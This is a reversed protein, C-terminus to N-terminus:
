LRSEIDSWDYKHLKENITKKIEEYENNLRIQQQMVEYIQDNIEILEDDNLTKRKEELETIKEETEKVQRKLEKLKKIINELNEDLYKETDNVIKMIEWWEQEEIISSIHKEIKQIIEDKLEENIWLDLSKIYWIIKEFNEVIEKHKEKYEKLTKAQAERWISLLRKLEEESKWRLKRRDIKQWYSQSQEEIQKKLRYKENKLKAINKKQADLKEREKRVRSLMLRKISVGCEIEIAEDAIEMMQKEISKLYENNTGLKSKLEKGKVKHRKKLEKLKKYKEDAAQFDWDKKANEYNEFFNETLRETLESFESNELINNEKFYKILEKLNLLKEYREIIVKERQWRQTDISCEEQWTEWNENITDQEWDDSSEDIHFTIIENKGQQRTSITVTWETKDVNLIKIEDCRYTYQQKWIMFFQWWKRHAIYFIKWWIVNLDSISDFKKENLDIYEEKWLMLYRKNKKKVYYIPEWWIEGYIGISDFWWAYVKDWRIIHYGCNNKVWFLPKWWIEKVEWMKEYRINWCYKGWRTVNCYWESDTNAIMTKWWIEKQFHLVGESKFAPKWWIEQIYEINRYWGSYEENWRIVCYRYDKQVIFCPKWWVEQIYEINRYWGSYEENWRIICYFDNWRRDKKRALFCPKWWIDQLDYTQYYLDKQQEEWWIICHKWEKIAEFCPKWWIEQLNYIGDFWDWQQETWRMICYKWDKNVWYCLKWWIEQLYDKDIYKNWNSYQEKWHMVCYKWHKKIIFCPKWWIEQLRNVTEFRDSYQETWWMVCCKWNKEAVFCPKWWIEQLDYTSDFWDWQRETWRMICYKWDKKAEFVPKWWIEQIKEVDDFWEWQQKNWRMVCYKWDKRANFCPKWWIECLWYIYEYEWWLQEEWWIICWKWDKKAKFVPKWWIERYYKEVENKSEYINKRIWISQAAKMRLTWQKEDYYDFFKKSVEDEIRKKIEDDVWIWDNLLKIIEHRTHNIWNLQNIIFWRYDRLSAPRTVGESFKLQTNDMNETISDDSNQDWSEKEVKEWYIEETEKIESEREQIIKEIEKIEENLKKMETELKKIETRQLNLTTEDKWTMSFWRLKEVIETKEKNKTELLDKLSELSQYKIEITDLEEWIKTYLDSGKEAKENKEFNALIEQRTKAKFREDVLEYEQLYEFFKDRNKRRKERTEDVRKKYERPTETMKNKKIKLIIKIREGSIERIKRGM